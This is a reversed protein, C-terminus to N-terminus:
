SSAAICAIAFEAALSKFKVVDEDTGTMKEANVEKGKEYRYKCLWEGAPSRVAVGGNGESGTFSFFYSKGDVTRSAGIASVTDNARTEYTVDKWDPSAKALGEKVKKEVTAKDPKGGCGTSTLVFLM